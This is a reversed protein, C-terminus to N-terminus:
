KRLRRLQRQTLMWRLEAGGREFRRPVDLAVCAGKKLRLHMADPSGTLLLSVLGSLQPEHGVILVNDHRAFPMLATVAEAPPVGGSLAPLVQPPPSNSYASAVIGATEAARVLPSTVIADFKIGFARMGAAADSMRDKGHVTLKRAEDGGTEATEEAEAHRLIYLMM